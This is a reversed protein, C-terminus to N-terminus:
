GHSGTLRRDNIVAGSHKTAAPDLLFASRRCRQLLGNAPHADGAADVNSASVPQIWAELANPVSMGAGCAAFCDIGHGGARSFM